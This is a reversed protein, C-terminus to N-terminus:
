GRVKPCNIFFVRYNNSNSGLHPKGGSMRREFPRSPRRHSHGTITSLSIGEDLYNESQNGFLKRIIEWLLGTSNSSRDIDHNHPRLTSRFM